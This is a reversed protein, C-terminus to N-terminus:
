RETRRVDVYTTPDRLAVVVVHDTTRRRAPERSHSRQLGDITSRCEVGVNRIKEGAVNVGGTAVDLSGHTKKPPKDASTPGNAVDALESLCGLESLISNVSVKVFEGLYASGNLARQVM